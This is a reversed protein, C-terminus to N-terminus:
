IGATLAGGGGRLHQTPAPRSVSPPIRPEGWSEWHPRSHLTPSVVAGPHSHDLSNEPWPTLWFRRPSPLPVPPLPTAQSWPLTEEGARLLRLSLCLLSLCLSEQLSGPWGLPLQSLRAAQPERRGWPKTNPVVHNALSPISPVGGGVVGAAQAEEETFCLKM